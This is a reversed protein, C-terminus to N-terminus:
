RELYMDEEEFGEVASMMSTARTERGEGTGTNANTASRQRKMKLEMFPYSERPLSIVVNRLDLHFHSTSYQLRTDESRYQLCRHYNEVEDMLQRYTFVKTNISLRGHVWYRVNDWWGIKPQLKSLEPNAPPPTLRDIIKIFEPMGESVVDGFNVTIAKTNLNADIYVKTPVGASRVVTGFPITPPHTFSSMHVCTYKPPPLGPTSTSNLPTLYLFGQLNISDISVLPTILTTPHIAVLLSTAVLTIAGGQNNGYARPTPDSDLALSALM